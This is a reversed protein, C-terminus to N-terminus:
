KKFVNIAVKESEFIEGNSYVKVTFQKSKNYKYKSLIPKINFNIDFTSKGNIICEKKQSLINIDKFNFIFLFKGKISICIKEILFNSDTNNIIQILLQLSTSYIEGFLSSETHIWTAIPNITIKEM